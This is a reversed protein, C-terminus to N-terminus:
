VLTTITPSQDDTTDTKDDDLLYYPQGRLVEDDTTAKEPPRNGAILCLATVAAFTAASMYWSTAPPGDNNSVLYVGAGALAGVQAVIFLCGQLHGVMAPHVGDSLLANVTAYGGLGICALFIAAFVLLTTPNDFARLGLGACFLCSICSLVALSKAHKLRPLLLAQLVVVGLLPSLTYCISLVSVQLPRWGYLREGWYVAVQQLGSRFCNLGFYVITLCACRRDRLVLRFAGVQAGLSAVVADCLGGAKSRRRDRCQEEEQRGQAQFLYFLSPLVVLGSLAQCAVYGFYDIILLGGVFGFIHGALAHMRAIVLGIDLDDGRRKDSDEDSDMREIVKKEPTTELAGNSSIKKEAVVGGRHNNKNGELLGRLLRAHLFDTDDGMACNGKLVIDVVIANCMAVTCDLLGWVVSVATWWITGPFCMAVLSGSLGLGGVLTPIRRGIRDSLAGWIGSTLVQGCLIAVYSYTSVAAAEKASMGFTDILIYSMVLLELGYCAGAGWFEFLYVAGRLGRYYEEASRKSVDEEEAVPAPRAQESLLSTTRSESEDYTAEEDMDNLSELSM